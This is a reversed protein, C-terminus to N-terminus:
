LMSSSAVVAVGIDINVVLRVVDIASLAIVAIVIAVTFGYCSFGCMLDSWCVCCCVHAVSFLFMQLLVNEIGVVVLVVFVNIIVVV